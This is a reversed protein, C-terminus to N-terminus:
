QSIKVYALIKKISIQYGKFEAKKIGKKRVILTM